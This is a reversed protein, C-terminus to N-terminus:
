RGPLLPWSESHLNGLRDRAELFLVQEGAAGARVGFDVQGLGVGGENDLLEIRLRRSDSLQVEPGQVTLSGSGPRMRLLLVEVGNPARWTKDLTQWTRGSGSWELDAVSAEGRRKRGKGQKGEEARSGTPWAKSTMGGDARWESTVTQWTIRPAEPDYVVEKPELERRNGVRDRVSGSVRHVGPERLEPLAGTVPEGDFLLHRSGVGSMADEATVELRAGPGLYLIGGIQASPGLVRVMATPPERDAQDSLISLEVGQSPYGDLGSDSRATVRWYLDGLPLADPRWLPGALGDVKRLLRGCQPDGCIEVTYERAAEVPQWELAPNSFALRTGPEPATPAPAPLLKEPPSPVGAEPVSTGTGETLQVAAGGAAVEGEGKYLMVQAGGSQPRRARAVAPGTASPRPRATTTGMVLEVDSEPREISGGELDAQGHVIEMSQRSAQPQERPSARIFVLSNETIRM